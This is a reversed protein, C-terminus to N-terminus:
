TVNYLIRKMNGKIIHYVKILIIVKTSVCPRADRCLLGVNAFIWNIKKRYNSFGYNEIILVKMEFERGQWPPTASPRPPEGVV